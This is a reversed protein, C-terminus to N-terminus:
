VRMWLRDPELHMWVAWVGPRRKAQCAQVHLRQQPLGPPRIPRSRRPRPRRLRGFPGPGGYPEWPAGWAASHQRGAGAAGGQSDDALM